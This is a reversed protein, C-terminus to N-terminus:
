DVMEIHEAADLERVLIAEVRAKGSFYNLNSWGNLGLYISTTPQGQTIANSAPASVGTAKVTLATPTFSMAFSERTGDAVTTDLTSTDGAGAVVAAALVSGGSSHRLERREAGTENSTSLIYQDADPVDTAFTVDAFMTLDDSLAKRISNITLTGAATTTGAEIEFLVGGVVTTQFVANGETNVSEFREISLGGPLKIYFGGASRVGSLDVEVIDGDLLGLPAALLKVKEVASGASLTLSGDANISFRGEGTNSFWAGTYEKVSLNDFYSTDGDSGSGTQLLAWHTTQTAIFVLESQVVGVASQTAVAIASASSSNTIAVHITTSASAGKDVDCALRYAKGVECTLPVSARGINGAGRAASLRGTDWTVTGLIQSYGAIDSDFAGNPALEAGTTPDNDVAGSQGGTTYKDPSLKFADIADIKPIIAGSIQSSGPRTPHHPQQATTKTIQPMGIDITIDVPGFDADRVLGVDFAAFAVDGSADADAATKFVTIPTSQRQTPLAVTTVALSHFAPVSTFLRNTVGVNGDLNTFDGGSKHVFISGFLDDGDVAAFINNQAFRITISGTPSGVFRVRTWDIGGETWFSVVEVESGLMNFYAWGTPLSGAGNVVGVVAGTHGTNPVGNEFTGNRRQGTAQGTADYTPVFGFYPGSRGKLMEYLAERDPAKHMPYTTMHPMSKRIDFGTATRVSGLRGIQYVLGTHSEATTISTSIPVWDATLTTDATVVEYTGVGNRKISARVTDGADGDLARVEYHWTSSEGAGVDYSFVGSIYGDSTGLGTVRTFETGDADVMRSIVADDAEDWSRLDDPTGPAVHHPPYVANGDADYAIYLTDGENSIRHSLNIDGQGEDDFDGAFRSGFAFVQREHDLMVTCATDLFLPQATTAKLYGFRAGKLDAKQQALSTSIVQAADRAAVASDVNASTSVVNANTTVVDANTLAVDANTLVVDAHTLVVDANTLAVDANTLVVDANTLVVDANTTAVDATTATTADNFATLNVAVADYLETSNSNLKIMADRLPDGTGDNPVTGVDITQKAM